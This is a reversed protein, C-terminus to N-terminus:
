VSSLYYQLEAISEQIDEIARHAEQKEFSVNYRGQMVIKFSTVDLMRYHLLRELAPMHQRIFLRDMHISNGALVARENGFHVSVIECLEQEVMELGKGTVLQTLFKERNELQEQWWPNTTMRELVLEKPYAVHQEYRALEAFEFDTIISGVELIVDNVPDLGTMELDIWLLQTPVDTTKSM